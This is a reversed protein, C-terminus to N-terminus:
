RAVERLRGASGTADTAGTPEASSGQVGTALFAHLEHAFDDLEAMAVRGTRVFANYALTAPIAVALGIATMVLAEGVPGAVKDMTAQGSASSAGIALLAHYIGWVTGFLGVFPATSGVAALLSLGEEQRAREALLARHLARDVFDEGDAAILANDARRQWRHWAAFGAGAVRAGAGSDHLRRELVAPAPCARYAAFFARRRGGETLTLTTKIAILSWSAVSMLALAVLVSMAVTDAQHLFHFFGPDSM